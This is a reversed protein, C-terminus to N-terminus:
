QRAGEELPVIVLPEISVDELPLLDTSVLRVAVQGDSARRILARLAAAERADILIEPESRRVQPREAAATREALAKASWRSEEEPLAITFPRAELLAIAKASRETAPAESVQRAVVIAAIVVAAAATVVLVRPFWTAHRMPDDATRTRVRAAFEASPGVALLAQLERDITADSIM